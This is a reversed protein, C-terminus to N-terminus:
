PESSSSGSTLRALSPHGFKTLKDFQHYGPVSYVLRDSIGSFDCNRIRDIWFTVDPLRYEALYSCLDNAFESTDTTNAVPYDYPLKVREPDLILVGLEYSRIMLQTKNKQLAGWPRLKRSLIPALSPTTWQPPAMWSLALIPTQYPLSDGANYGELSM